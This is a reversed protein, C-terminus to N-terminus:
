RAAHLPRDSRPHAPSGERAAAVALDMLGGHGIQARRVETRLAQARVLAERLGGVNCCPVATASYPAVAMTVYPFWRLGPPTMVPEKTIEYDGLLQNLARM